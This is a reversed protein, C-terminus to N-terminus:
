EGEGFPSPLEIEGISEATRRLEQGQERLASGTDKFLNRIDKLKKFDDFLSSGETDLAQGRLAQRQFEFDPIAQLMQESVFATAPDNVPDIGEVPVFDQRGFAQLVVSAMAGQCVCTEYVEDTLHPSLDQLNYAANVITTKFVGEKTQNAPFNVFKLAFVNANQPLNLTNPDVGNAAALDDLADRNTTGLRALAVRVEALRDIQSPTPRTEGTVEQFGEILAEERDIQDQIEQRVAEVEAELQAKLGLDGFNESEQNRAHIIKSLVNM